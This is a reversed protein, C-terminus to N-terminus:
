LLISKFSEETRNEFTVDIKKRFNRLKSVYKHLLKSLDVENKQSLFKQHLAFHNIVNRIREAGKNLINGIQHQSIKKSFFIIIAKNIKSSEDM